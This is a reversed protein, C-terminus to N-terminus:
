LTGPSQLGRCGPRKISELLEGWFVSMNARYPADNVPLTYSEGKKNQIAYTANATSNDRPMPSPCGGFLPVSKIRSLRSSIELPDGQTFTNQYLSAIERYLVGKFPTGTDTQLVELTGPIDPFAKSNSQEKPIVKWSPKPVIGKFQYM